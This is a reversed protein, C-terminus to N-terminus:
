FLMLIWGGGLIIRRGMLVVVLIADVVGVACSISIIPVVPAASRGAIELIYRDALQGSSLASDIIERESVSSIRNDSISRTTVGGGIGSSSCCCSCSSNMMSDVVVVVNGGGRNGKDVIPKNGDIVVVDDVAVAPTIVGGRVAVASGVGWDELLDSSHSNLPRM